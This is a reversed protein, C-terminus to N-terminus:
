TLECEIVSSSRFGVRLFVPMYMGCEECNGPGHGRWRHTPFCEHNVRLNQAFEEVEERWELPREVRAQEGYQREMRAEATAYLRREEWQECRCTKWKAACEYCFEYGCYCTM